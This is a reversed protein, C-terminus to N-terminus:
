NTNFIRDFILVISATSSIIGLVLGINQQFPRANKAKLPNVIIQDNPQLYFYPDRLLDEDLVDLKLIRAINNEYRVIQINRRDAFETLDNAQAIAELINVKGTYSNYTGPSRVEGLVVYKFSLLKMKVNPSQLGASELLEKITKQAEDITRGHILIRGVVPLEIFGEEDIVYGSLIPDGGGLQKQAREIFNFESDTLTFVRIDIIDESKLRYPVYNTQYENSSITSNGSRDQLYKLDKVPVCSSAMAILFFLLLTIRM